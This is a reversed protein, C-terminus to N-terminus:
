FPFPEEVSEEVTVPEEVIPQVPPMLTGNNDAENLMNIIDTKSTSNLIEELTYIKYTNDEVHVLNFDRTIGGGINNLFGTLIEDKFSKNKARKSEPSTVYFSDDTVVTSVQLAVDTNDEPNVALIFNNDRMGLRDYAEDSVTIKNTEPDVRLDWSNKLTTIKKKQRQVVQYM